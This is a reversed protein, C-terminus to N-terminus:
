TRKLRHPSATPLPTARAPVPQAVQAPATPHAVPVVAEKKEPVRPPVPAPLEAHAATAPAM